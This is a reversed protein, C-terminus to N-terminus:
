PRRGGRLNLVEAAQDAATWSVVGDPNIEEKPLGADIRARIQSHDTLPTGLRQELEEQLAQYAAPWRRLADTTIM